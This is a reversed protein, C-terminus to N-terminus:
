NKVRSETLVKTYGRYLEGAAAPCIDILEALAIPKGAEDTVGDISVIVPSLLADMTAGANAQQITQDRWKDHESARQYQYTVKLVATEAQGPVTIGVDGTVTKPTVIKIAMAKTHDATNFQNPQQATAPIEGPWQM